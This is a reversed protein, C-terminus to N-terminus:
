WPSLPFSLCAWHYTLPSRQVPFSQFHYSQDTGFFLVSLLHFLLDNVAIIVTVAYIKELIAKANSRQKSIQDLQKQPNYTPQIEVLYLGCLSLVWVLGINSGECDM